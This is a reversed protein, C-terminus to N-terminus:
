KGAGELAASKGCPECLWVGRGNGHRTQSGRAGTDIKVIVEGANVRHGCDLRGGRKSRASAVITSM